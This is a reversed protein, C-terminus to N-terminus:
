RKGDSVEMLVHEKGCGQVIGPLFCLALALAALVLKSLPTLYKM